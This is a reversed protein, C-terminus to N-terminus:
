SSPTAVKFSQEIHASRASQAQVHFKAVWLHQGVKWAAAGIQVSLYPQYSGDCCGLATGNQIATILPVPNDPFYSDALPWSHQWSNILDKISAHHTPRTQVQTTYNVLRPHNWPDVSVEARSLDSPAEGRIAIQSYASCRTRGQPAYEHWNGHRLSYLHRTTPSYHWPWVTHSDPFGKGLRNWIPFQYMSSSIHQLCTRWRSYDTSSPREAAWIWRSPALKHGVIADGHIASGDATAIDALTLAEMALRVRNCSILETGNVGADMLEEMIFRDDEQQVSPLSQNAWELLINHEWIFAWVVKWFCPTLLTSHTNYPLELFSQSFGIELQAQELTAQLLTGTPTDIAGHTLIKKLHDIEQEVKAHPLGLGQLETPAYRFVKPFSRVAGLKPLVTTFLISSIDLGEQHTM